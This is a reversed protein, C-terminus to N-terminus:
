DTGGKPGVVLADTHGPRYIRDGPEHYEDDGADEFRWAEAKFPPPCGTTACEPHDDCGGPGCRHGEEDDQFSATIPKQEGSAYIPWDTYGLVVAAAAEETTAVSALVWHDGDENAYYSM